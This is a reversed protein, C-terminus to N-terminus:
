ESVFTIDPREQQLIAINEETLDSRLWRLTPHHRVMKILMEQSVHRTQLANQSVYVTVLNKISLRELNPCHRFMFSPGPEEYHQPREEFATANVESNDLHLETLSRRIDHGDLSFRGQCGNFHLRQLKHCDKVLTKVNGFCNNYSLDLEELNPLMGVFTVLAPHCLVDRNPASFSM